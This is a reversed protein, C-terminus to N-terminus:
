IICFQARLKGDLRKSVLREIRILKFEEEFPLKRLDGAFAVKGKFCVESVLMDPLRIVTGESLIYLSKNVDRKLIGEGVIQVGCWLKCTHRSLDDVIVYGFSKRDCLKISLILVLLVVILGGGMLVSKRFM